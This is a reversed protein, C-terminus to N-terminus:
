ICLVSKSMTLYCTRIFINEWRPMTPLCLKARRWQVWGLYLMLCLWLDCTWILNNIVSAVWSSSSVISDTKNLLWRIRVASCYAHCNLTLLLSLPFIVELHSFHAPFFICHTWLLHFLNTFLLLVSHPLLCCTFLKKWTDPIPRGFNDYFLPRLILINDNIRLVGCHCGSM